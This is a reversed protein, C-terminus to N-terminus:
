LEGDHTTISLAHALRTEDDLQYRIDVTDHQRYTGVGCAGLFWRWGSVRDKRLTRDVVLTRGDLQDDIDARQLVASIYVDFDNYIDLDRPLTVVSRAM